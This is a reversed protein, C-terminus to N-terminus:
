RAGILGGVKVGQYSPAGAPFINKPKFKFGSMDPIANANRMQSNLENTRTKMYETEAEKKEDFAGGVFNGAMSLMNKDFKGDPGKFFDAFSQLVGKGETAGMTTQMPNMPSAQTGGALRADTPNMTAEMLGGGGQQPAGALPNQGQIGSSIASDGGAPLGATASSASSAQGIDLAPASAPPGMADLGPAATSKLAEINGTAEKGMGLFGKGTAFSGIGGALSAIGGIKMLDENGTVAGIGSAIAGVAAVVEFASMAAIGVTAIEMGAFIAGAVAAVPM